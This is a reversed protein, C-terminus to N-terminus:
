RERETELQNLRVLMEVADISEVFPIPGDCDDFRDRAFSRADGEDHFWRTRSGESVRYVQM